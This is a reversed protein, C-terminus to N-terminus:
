RSGSGYLTITVSSRDNTSNNEFRRYIARTGSISSYDPNSPPAQLDGGDAVNQTDGANGIQLPSILYGNSTVLGDTHGTAGSATMHNQPNWLNSSSTIEAQSAYNGSVIRFDETNFYENTFGNSSGVSGSYVMFSTKSRSTTNLTSKLPHIIRSAVTVDYDTFLGLGGSISTLDDFRVTGTVELDQQECDATDNLAALAVSAAATSDTTVGSGTQRINTVSCNTTTPFTIATSDQYVNRYVNSAEYTYSASPRSAFYGIGSQYHIDLHDFNGLAPNAESLANSDTDVVWEVYNTNTDSAGIRHIVRAYNWGLNQDDAGVQYTGTRYPKTYDPISDTTTSFGVASVSFGSSNGNFDNSIANLTSSLDISHVELGNVVLVLSGTFADKFANAPYNDGNSSM